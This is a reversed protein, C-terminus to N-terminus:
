SNSRGFGFLKSFVGRGQEPQDSDTETAAPEIEFEPLEIVEEAAVSSEVLEGTAEEAPLPIRQQASHVLLNGQEIIQTLKKVQVKEDILQTDLRALQKDKEKIQDDKADLQKSLRDITKTLLNLGDASFHGTVQTPSQDLHNPTDTQDNSLDDNSSPAPSNHQDPQITTQTNPQSPAAANSYDAQASSSDLGSTVPTTPTATQTDVPNDHAIQSDMQDPEQTTASLLQSRIEDPLNVHEILFTQNIKYVSSGHRNTMTIMKDTTATRNRLLRKILRRITVESKGTLKAAQKITLFTNSMPLSSPSYDSCLAM